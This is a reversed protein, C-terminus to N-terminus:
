KIELVCSEDGWFYKVYLCFYIIFIFINNVGEFMKLIKKDNGLIFVVSKNGRIIYCILVLVM